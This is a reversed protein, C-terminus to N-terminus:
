SDVSLLVEKDQMAVVLARCWQFDEPGEGEWFYGYLRNVSVSAAADSVPSPPAPSEVRCGDSFYRAIQKVIGPKARNSFHKNLGDEM